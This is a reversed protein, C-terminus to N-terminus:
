WSYNCRSLIDQIKGRVKPHSIECLYVSAASNMAGDGFGSLGMAMLIIWYKRASAILGWALLIPVQCMLLLTRRGLSDAIWGGLISGFIGM